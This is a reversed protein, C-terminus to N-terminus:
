RAQQIASLIWHGGASARLFTWLETATVHETASGDVVRGAADYTVDVMGFRMAVTAYDRRGESWAQALDGQLLRVDRVENRVGRTAQDALQQAFYSAMEPTTLARLANLDHATWASQIAYLSNEFSQYDGPGVALSTPPGGAASMPIPGAGAGRSFMTPGGALVPRGGRFMRLLFRVAWVLLLIQLLLGFFGGFGMGAGWFGHGFLLGGIGAGLLGGLVGSLFPSHRGYGMGYGNYGYSPGSRQFPQASYPATRTAPPASWTMSGRSGFSGGMGARAEALTPALLLGLAVVAALLRFRCFWANRKETLMAAIHPITGSGSLPRPRIDGTTSHISLDAGRSM